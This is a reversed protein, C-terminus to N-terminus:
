DPHRSRQTLFHLKALHNELQPPRPGRLSKHKRLKRYISFLMKGCSMSLPQIQGAERHVHASRTLGTCQPAHSTTHPRCGLGGPGRHRDGEGRPFRESVSSSIGCLPSGVQGAWRGGWRESEHTLSDQVGVIGTRTFVRRHTLESLGASSARPGGACSHSTM